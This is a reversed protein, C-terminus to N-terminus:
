RLPLLRDLKEIRSAHRGMEFRAALFADLADIAVQEGILREGMCIVNADNHQHALRASTADHVTGARVGPIKNAAMAIGIGSGCTCLGLEATGDVVARGVAAGFDPYDCRETSHCGLDIVEHGAERLHDSLVTKLHFGAHDSGVAIRSM